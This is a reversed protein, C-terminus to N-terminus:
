DPEWVAEIRIGTQVDPEIMNSHLRYKERVTSRFVDFGDSDDSTFEHICICDCPIETDYGFKAKKCNSTASRARSFYCSVSKKAYDSRGLSKVFLPDSPCVDAAKRESQVM